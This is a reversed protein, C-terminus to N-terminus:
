GLHEKSGKINPISPLSKLNLLENINQLAEDTKSPFENTGSLYQLLPNDQM